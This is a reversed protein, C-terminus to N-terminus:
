IVWVGRRSLEEQASKLDDELAAVLEPHEEKSFMELDLRGQEVKRILQMDSM